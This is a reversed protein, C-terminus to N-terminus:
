GILLIVIFLQQKIGKFKPPPPKIICYYVVLLLEKFDAVAPKLEYEDQGNDHM